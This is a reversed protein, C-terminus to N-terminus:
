RGDRPGAGGDDQGAVWGDVTEWQWIGPDQRWGYGLIVRQLLTKQFQVVQKCSHEGLGM